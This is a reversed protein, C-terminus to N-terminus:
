EGTDRIPVGRTKFWRYEGDRRRVRYEIDYSHHGAVSALWFRRTPERITRACHRWGGGAL